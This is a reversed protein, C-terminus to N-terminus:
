LAQFYLKAMYGHGSHVQVVPKITANTKIYLNCLSSTLLQTYVVTNRSTKSLQSARQHCYCRLHMLTPTQKRLMQCGACPMAPKWILTQYLSVNAHGVLMPAGHTHPAWFRNRVQCDATTTASKPHRQMRSPALKVQQRHLRASQPVPHLPLPPPPCMKPIVHWVEGSASTAPTIKTTPQNM